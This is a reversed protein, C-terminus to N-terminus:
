HVTYLTDRHCQAILVTMFSNHQTLLLQNIAGLCLYHVHAYTYTHINKYQYYSAGYIKNGAFELTIHQTSMKWVEVSPRLLCGSDRPWGGVSGSEGWRRVTGM